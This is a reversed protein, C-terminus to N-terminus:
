AREKILQIRRLHRPCNQKFATRGHILSHNDAILLDGEQWEHRYCYDAAYIKKTLSRVLPVAESEPLGIVELSVPNMQTSVPEAFRLIPQGSDPHSQVLPGRISGGYHALKETDYKLDVAAWNTKEETSAKSFILETNTFLTEGGAHPLPAEVCAFVLYDPVKHFAGDWHFPVQERSFLYNQPDQSEKMEMVPGFSWNLTKMKPVSQCFSLFDDREFAKFGRLVVLKHEQILNELTSIAVADASDANDSVICIGFPNLKEIRM